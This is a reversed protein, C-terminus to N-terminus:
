KLKQLSLDEAFRTKLRADLFADIRTQLLVYQKDRDFFDESPRGNGGICGFM